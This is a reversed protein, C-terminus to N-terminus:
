QGVGLYRMIAAVILSAAAENALVLSGKGIMIMVKSIWTSTVPGPKEDSLKDEKLSKELDSTLEKSLGLGKLYDKLETLNGAQIQINQQTIKGSNEIAVNGGYITNYVIKKVTEQSPHSITVKDKKENVKINLERQIKIIFELVRTRIIDVIGSISAKSTVRWASMLVMDRYIPKQQYYAIADSPWQATLQQDEKGKTLQELEAAPETMYDTFLNERHEKDIVVKPIPANNLRAGFSGSFNGLVLAPSIRYDPLKKISSYGNLESQAWNMLEDNNLRDALRMCLRLLESTPMASGTAGESIKEVLDIIKKPDKESM